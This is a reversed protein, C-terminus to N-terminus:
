PLTMFTELKNTREKESSYFAVIFCMNMRETEKKM